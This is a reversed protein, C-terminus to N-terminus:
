FQFYIFARDEGPTVFLAVIMLALVLGRLWWPMREAVSRLSSDRVLYQLLCTGGMVVAVKVLDNFRLVSPAHGHFGFLGALMSFAEGFTQSRFPVWAVSVLLFTVVIGAFKAVEGEFMKMGATWRKWLREGILYLGHLGGWAVFTWSAGHWLGGLLMAAMLNFLTRATGRRNGGLTIYLYDRLWTSLTIHWRQWFDRFGCAAYPFRFNDPLNFGLCLGVGRACISYGSFDFFIQGAFALMGAWADVVGATAASQFAQDVLPALFGDALVSKEFLGLVLLSLGWGLQKGTAARPEVCQPLFYEARMIPGAVMRPFFGIFLAFDLLSHWPKLTGRYINITYSMAEFTYFSIGVPLVIDLRPAHYDVGLSRMLLAFNETLFNAYKFFGLLGFNSLLSICLLARRGALTRARPMANAVKWDVVTTILLLAVFPPNWAAYFLYSVLVLNLKKVRWSVPLNHLCLVGLLFIAFSLSNFIM